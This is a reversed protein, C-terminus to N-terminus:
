ERSYEVGNVKKFYRTLFEKRCVPVYTDNGGILVQEGEIVIEGNSDIRMNMIAKKESYWCVTKIEEISDAFVLLHYSGEFLDGKFDSKLGYCIVPVNFFDVITALELVQSYILFQCEDVLICDVSGSELDQRLIETISDSEKVSIADHSLGIRSTVKGVGYRTDITPVLIRVNKGREEYNHAIKLVEISKGANMTSYRYYLKAM